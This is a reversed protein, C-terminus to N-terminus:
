PDEGDDRRRALLYGGGAISALAAVIGMGPTEGSTADTDDGDDPDGDDPDGDDPDGDDVSDEDGDGVAVAGRMRDPHLSCYYEVMERTAVFEVSATEGQETVVDTGVLETGQGDLVYFDHPAGDGNEWAVTYTEGPQLRLTPNTEGEISGPSVGIWGGTEGNLEITGGGEITDGGGGDTPRIEIGSISSAVQHTATSISLSGDSVDVGRITKTLATDHGGAEAFIDLGEIVTEGEISVDFERIGEIQFNEEVFHLTVDYTGKDVLIEHGLNRGLQVSRYLADHETEAIPDETSRVEVDTGTVSVSLHPLTVFELGDITVSEEGGLNLGFPPSVPSAIRVPLQSTERFQEGNLSYRTTATLSHAGTASDPVTVDWSMSLTEGPALSDFSTGSGVSVEVTWDAPVSLTVEGSELTSSTTNRLSAEVTTTTGSQVIAETGDAFEVSPTRVSSHEIRYIGSDDNPAEYGSGWEAVYLAGDPGVAVDMPSEFPIDPLFPDIEMATGEDDFSVYNIRGTAWEWVFLKGDFSRPLAVDPDYEDRHRYLPGVMPTAGRLQPFPPQDPLYGAAYDPADLFENWYPTYYIMAEEAPPLDVLGDNNPSENRPSDPDFPDGSASTEFDHDRYPVNPGVFYPWGYFGPDTARNFEVVAPPGRKPDWSKADPGYDGWYLTGTERDVSARFPNRMGMAYIEPRVLGREIEEGYGKSATFLNDEPISYTGDDEPVIRLISGGLAATNASTRQADYPERGAREDIPSYGSSEFPSTADGLTLYLEGDPGFEIDGAYHGIADRQVPVALIPVESDPDITDGEVTFRSLRNHPDEIEDSPPAYYVYIWGNTRFDPDLGIGKLGNNTGYVSLELAVTTENTPTNQDVVVVNEVDDENYNAREIYFIRGDPAVELMSPSSTETDIPVKTYHDWVTGTADGDVYGAAWMIGRLLHQRFNEDDYQEPLHGLATYWSRGGAVPQCWSIPHDTGDMRANEYSREDATCLVHVDGRPNRTFDYWEATLEWEAPLHETSPHTRDTVHIKGEQIRPHSEFYTGILRNFFSGDTQNDVASHIGVFGGGSRVYEEFADAQADSLVVPDTSQPPNADNSNNFVVVDYRSLDEADTPFATPPTGDEESDIVDVTVDDADSLEAIRDGLDRITRNAKPIVDHRYDPTSSVVLIAPDAGVTQPRARARGRAGPPSLNSGVVGSLGVAGVGGLVDRRYVTRCDDDPSSRM